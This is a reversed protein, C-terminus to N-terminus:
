FGSDELPFFLKTKGIWFVLWESPRFRYKQDQICILLLTYWTEFLLGSCSVCFCYFWNSRVFHAWQTKRQPHVPVINYMYHNIIDAQCKIISHLLFLFLLLLLFLCALRRSYDVLRIQFPIIAPAWDSCSTLSSEDQLLPASMLSVTHLWNGLIVRCTRNNM